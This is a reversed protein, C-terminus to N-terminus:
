EAARRPRIGIAAPATRSQCLGSGRATRGAAGVSVDAAGARTVGRSFLIAAYVIWHIPWRGARGARRDPVNALANQTSQPSRWTPWSLTARRLLGSQQRHCFTKGRALIEHFM